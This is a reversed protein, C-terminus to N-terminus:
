DKKLFNVKIWNWNLILHLIVCTILIGAGTGHISEFMDNTFIGRLLGTVLQFVLVVALVPNLVKLLINTKM